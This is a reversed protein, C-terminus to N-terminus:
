EVGLFTRIRDYCDDCLDILRMKGNDNLSIILKRDITEDAKSASTACFNLPFSYVVGMDKGCKDCTRKLM